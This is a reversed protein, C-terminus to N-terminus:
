ADTAVESPLVRGSARVGVEALAFIGLLALGMWFEGLVALTALSGYLMRVGTGRFVSM